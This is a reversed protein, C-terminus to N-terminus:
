DLDIHDENDKSVEWNAVIDRAENAYRMAKESLESDFSESSEANKIENINEEVMVTYDKMNESKAAERAIKLADMAEKFNHDQASILGKAILGSIMAEIKGSALSRKLIEDIDTFELNITKRKEETDTEISNLIDAAKTAERIFQVTQDLAISIDHSSSQIMAGVERVIKQSKTGIKEIWSGVVGPLSENAFDEQIKLIEQLFFDPSVDIPEFFASVSVQKKSFQLLIIEKKKLWERLSVKIAGSLDNMSYSRELNIEPVQPIFKIKNEKFILVGRTNKIDTSPDEYKLIVRFKKERNITEM